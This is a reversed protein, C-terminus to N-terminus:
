VPRRYLHTIRERMDPALRQELVRGEWGDAHLIAFGGLPYNTIWALHHPEHDYRMVAVDGEQLDSEKIPAVAVPEGLAASVHKILGDRHPERGYLLFDPLEVGCDAYPVKIEGACDLGKKNRGRHRFRVGIYSRAAEILQTM